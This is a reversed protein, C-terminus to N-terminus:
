SAEREDGGRKRLSEWSLSWAEEDLFQFRFVGDWESELLRFCQQEAASAVAQYRGAAIRSVHGRNQSVQGEYDLYALRHPPLPVASVAPGDAAPLREVAWTRLGAGQEFMLDFHSPRASATPLEHWLIVFRGDGHPAADAAERADRRSAPKRCSRKM